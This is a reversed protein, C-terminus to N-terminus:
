VIRTGTGLHSDKRESRTTIDSAQSQFLQIGVSLIIDTEIVHHESFRKVGFEHEIHSFPVFTDHGNFFTRKRPAKARSDQFAQGIGAQRDRYTPHPNRVEKNFM